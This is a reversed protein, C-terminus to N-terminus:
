VFTFGPSIVVQQAGRTVASKQLLTRASLIRDVSKAEQFGIFFTPDLLMATQVDIGEMVCLKRM